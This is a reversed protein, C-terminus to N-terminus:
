DACQEPCIYSGTSFSFRPCLRCHKLILELHGFNNNLGVKNIDCRSCDLKHRHREGFGAFLLSTSSQALSHHTSVILIGKREEPTCGIPKAHAFVTVACLLPPLLAQLVAAMQIPPQLCLHRALHLEVALVVDGQGASLGRRGEVEWGVVGTVVVTAHLPYPMSACRLPGPPTM